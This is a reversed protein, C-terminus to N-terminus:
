HFPLNDYRQSYSQDDDLALFDNLALISATFDHLFIYICVGFSLISYQTKASDGIMCKILWM